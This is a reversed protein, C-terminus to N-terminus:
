QSSLRPYTQYIRAKRFMSYRNKNNNNNNDLKNRSFFFFSILLSKPFFFFFYLGLVALLLNEVEIERSVFNYKYSHVTHIFGIRPNALATSRLNKWSGLIWRGNKILRRVKLNYYYNYVFVRIWRSYRRISRALTTLSTLKGISIDIVRM